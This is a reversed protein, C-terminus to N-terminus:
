NALVMQGTADAWQTRGSGAVLSNAQYQSVILQAQCTQTGVGLWTVEVSNDVGGTSQKVLYHLELLYDSQYSAQIASYSNPSLLFAVPDTSANVINVYLDNVPFINGFAQWQPANYATQSAGSKPTVLYVFRIYGNFAAPFTYRIKSSSVVTLLGGISNRFGTLYNTNNAAGWPNTFPNASAVRTVFQDMLIALGRATYLKPKRLMVTYSVRLEGISSNAFGSPTNALALQFTGHDYTKLDETPGVPGTRVYLVASHATKSPDCEVGHTMSVTTKCSMAHAYEVMQQKDAFPPASSNYNTAMIVTGVQGSTSTGIDTVTPMYEFLLQKFEYEEYNAALQSLFPFTAAFGPNLPYSEISFTTGSSPAYVEGLYETHTVTFAGTEDSSSGIQAISGHLGHGTASGEVLNNAAHQNVYLGRGTYLGGGAYDLAKELGQHAVRRVTPNRAFASIGRSLMSGFRYRGRGAYAAAQRNAKQEATAQKWSPGFSQLTFDSGRLLRAAGWTAWPQRHSFKYSALQAKQLNSLRGNPGANAERRTRRRPPGNM